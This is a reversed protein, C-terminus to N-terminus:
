AVIRVDHNVVRDNHAVAAVDNAVVIRNDFGFVVVLGDYPFFPSEAIYNEASEGVNEAVVNM